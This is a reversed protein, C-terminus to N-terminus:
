AMVKVLRYNLILICKGASKLNWNWTGNNISFIPRNTHTSTLVLHLHITIKTSHILASLNSTALWTVLKLWDFQKIEFILRKSSKNIVNAGHTRAKSPQIWSIKNWREPKHLGERSALSYDELSRNEDPNELSLNGAGWRLVSHRNTSHKSQYVKGITELHVQTGPSANVVWHLASFDCSCIHLYQTLQLLRSFVQGSFALKIPRIVTRSVEQKKPNLLKARTSNAVAKSTQDFGFWDLLLDATCHYVMAANHLGLHYILLEWTNCFM